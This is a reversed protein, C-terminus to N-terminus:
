QAAVVVLEVVDVLSAPPNTTSCTASTGSFACPYWTTAAASLKIQVTSGAPPASDLEFTVADVSSPNSANLSYHVSTVDYGTVSAQGIGARSDEVENGATSAALAGVLIAGAVTIGIAIGLVRNRGRANVLMQRSIQHSM